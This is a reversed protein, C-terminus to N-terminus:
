APRVRPRVGEISPWAPRIKRAMCPLAEPNRSRRPGIFSTSMARVALSLPAVTIVLLTNSNRRM